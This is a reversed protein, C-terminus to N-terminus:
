PVDIANGPRRGRWGLAVGALLLMPMWVWLIESRLVDLGHGALFRHPNLPSVEIPRFPFFFRENSFPAFFAVGLGGDTLADLLGHSATVIFLYLWLTGPGMGKVGRRFFFATLAAALLVAFALSHSFGRHGLVDKYPIGFRFALVDLDPLAACVAGLAWVGKPVGRRYFLASIGLAAVAHTLVTPM